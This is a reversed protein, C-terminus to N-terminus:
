DRRRVVKSVGDLMETEGETSAILEGISALRDWDETDDLLRQIREGVAEGFRMAAFRRLLARQGAVGERRGEERWQEPWQAVREM